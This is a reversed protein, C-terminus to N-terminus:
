SASPTADAAGADNSKKWVLMTMMVTLLCCILLQGWCHFDYVTGVRNTYQFHAAWFLICWQIAFHTIWVLMQKARIALVIALGAVLPWIVLVSAWDDYFEAAGFLCFFKQSIDCILVLALGVLAFRLGNFVRPLQKAQVANTKAGSLLWLGSWVVLLAPFGLYYPWLPRYAGLQAVMQQKRVDWVQLVPGRNRFGRVSCDVYLFRGGPSIHYSGSFTSLHIEAVQSMEDLRYVTVRKQGGALNFYTHPVIGSVAVFKEDHSFKARYTYSPLRKIPAELSKTLDYIEIYQPHAPDVTGPLGVDSLFALYRGNSSVDSLFDDYNKSVTWLKKGDLGWAEVTTRWREGAQFEARHLLKSVRYQKVILAFKSFNTPQCYAKVLTRSTGTPFKRKVAPNDIEVAEINASGDVYIIYQDGIIEAAVDNSDEFCYPPGASKTAGTEFNLRCLHEFFASNEYAGIGILMEQDTVFRVSRIWRDRDSFQPFQELGYKRKLNLKRDMVWLEDSQNYIVTEGDPSIKFTGPRRDTLRTIDCLFEISQWMGLLIAILIVLLLIQRLSFYFM